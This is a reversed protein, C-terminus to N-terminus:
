CQVLLTCALLNYLIVRPVKLGIKVDHNIIANVIIVSHLICCMWCQWSKLPAVALHVCSDYFNKSNVYHFLACVYHTSTQNVCNTIKYTYETHKFMNCFLSFVNTIIGAVNVIIKRAKILETELIKNLNNTQSITLSIRWLKRSIWEKIISKQRTFCKMLQGTSSKDRSLMINRDWPLFIDPFLESRLSDGSRVIPSTMETQTRFCAASSERHSILFSYLFIYTEFLDTSISRQM